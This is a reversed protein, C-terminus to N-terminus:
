DIDLVEATNIRDWTSHDAATAGKNLASTGGAATKITGASLM